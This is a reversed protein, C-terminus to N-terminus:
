FIRKLVSYFSFFGLTFLLYFFINAFPVLTFLVSIYNYIIHFFISSTFGFHLYLYGLVLAPIISEIPNGPHSIGFIISSFVILFNPLFKGRFNKPRWLFTLFNKFNFNKISLFFLPFGILTLRFGIEERIPAIISLTLFLLEDKPKPFDKLVLKILTLLFFTLSFAELIRLNDKLKLSYLNLLIFLLNLFSFLLFAFDFRLSLPFVFNLGFFFWRFTESSSQPSYNTNLKSFFFLNFSWLYSILFIFFIIWLLYEYFNRM